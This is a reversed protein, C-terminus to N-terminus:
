KFPQVDIHWAQLRGVLSSHVALHSNVKCQDNYIDSTMSHHDTIRIM